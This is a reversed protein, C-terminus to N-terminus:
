SFGAFPARREGEAAGDALGFSPRCDGPCNGGRATM